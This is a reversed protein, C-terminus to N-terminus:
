QHKNEEADKEEQVLAAVSKKLIAEIPQHSNEVAKSIAQWKEGFKPEAAVCKRLVEKHQHETGCQLEFKYLISWFDGVDPALDVALNLWNRAQDMKQNHWFLKGFAATIHPDHKCKSYAASTTKKKHPRPAMEISAAWLIGSNPCEQLAKALLNEAEKKSGHKSEARVAALWLEPNQPNRKRARTLVARVKSMGNMRLELNALSLWLPTSNPCHTLGLEYVEKAKPLRGQREELQGLMLWLKFFSPFFRLGEDLLRREEEGNGLEREVIASKMWVREGGWERDKALLTQSTERAKALIMRAREPENNEFELKFAALWIEESDPIAADASQLIKRAAPVDGALWKEKASMLWLVEAQPMYKVAKCLIGDLSERTGHAKEFQAAKLWVDTESKYDAIVCGYIARTTEISGRKECEKADAFWTMIRDEKEVGMGIISSVIANCTAVSGAQEAAEAEKMWSERDIEVGEKQLAWIGREIIKGVMSTNGKAEELKPAVSLLERQLLLKADEENALEVVAKWLRVSDPIKELGKRLVKSRIVDDHELTAAQMWLKVSNPIAKVGRAIVAKAEDPNVLRCAEIWVDENKPCEGCGTTILERAKEIKGAVEELRAAAIWGPAHKPNTQIVSKLLLRAKKIDSIEADNSIKMSQLDTLYGKPDVVTLGSVSDSVRDLKYGLLTGRGEGVATLDQTRSELATNYEKERRAKELLTDPVPGYSEFGKKKNRLSYDGSEPVGDWEAYSMTVLKRKLDVFRETIKPNSMCYNEIEEKLRSERRDKRRSDMCKDIEDWIADAEEDYEPSAFLGVDNGEFEDFKQNEDYGEELDQDDGVALCRAPGIDSRTTFGAAGRGLGAVYNVPPRANLNGIPAYM